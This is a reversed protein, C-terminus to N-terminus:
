HRDTARVHHHGEYTTWVHMGIATPGIERAGVVKEETEENESGRASRSSEILSSRGSSGGDEGLEKSVVACGPPQYLQHDESGNVSGHDVFFFLVEKVERSM